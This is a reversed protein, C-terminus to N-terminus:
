WLGNKWLYLAYAGQLFPVPMWRLWPLIQRLVSLHEYSGHQKCIFNDHLVFYSAGSVQFPRALQPLGLLAPSRGSFNWAVTIHTSDVLTYTEPSYVNDPMSGFRLRFWAEIEQQGRRPRHMGSDYLEADPAYLAVIAALNRSNFADIWRNAIDQATPTERQGQVYSFEEKGDM